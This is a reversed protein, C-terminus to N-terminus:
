RNCISKYDCYVCNERDQCMQFPVRSDLIEEILGSLRRAYENRKAPSIDISIVPDRAITRVPYVVTRVIEQEAGEEQCYILAYLLLQFLIKRNKDRDPEFLPDVPFDGGPFKTRDVSGTKYDALRVIRGQPGEIRDIRDIKAM